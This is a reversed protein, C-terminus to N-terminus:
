GFWDGLTLLSGGVASNGEFERPGGVGAARLMTRCCAWRRRLPGVMEANDTLVM